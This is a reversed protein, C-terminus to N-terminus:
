PPHSLRGEHIKDRMIRNQEKSLGQRRKEATQYQINRWEDEVAPNYYPHSPDEMQQIALHNPSRQFFRKLESPDTWGDQQLCSRCLRGHSVHSRLNTTQLCRSAYPPMAERVDPRYRRRDPEALRRLARQIFLAAFTEACTCMQGKSPDDEALGSDGTSQQGGDGGFESKDGAESAAEIGVAEGGATKNSSVGMRIADGAETYRPRRVVSLSGYHEVSITIDKFIEAKATQMISQFQKLRREKQNETMEENSPDLMAVTEARSFLTHWVESFHYYHLESTATSTVSTEQSRPSPALMFSEEEEDDSDYAPKPPWITRSSNPIWRPVVITVARTPLPQLPGRLAQMKRITGKRSDREHPMWGIHQPLANMLEDFLEVPMIKYYKGGNRPDSGCLSEWTQEFARFDTETLVPETQDTAKKYHELVVAIFLNLMIFQGILQFSVFYMVAMMPNGCEDAEENCDPPQVMCDHMIGNWSEGTAMRFVTLLSTGFSAFNAHDGLFEADEAPQIKGMLHMGLVAYIFFILFLLGGVNLMTPVANVVALFLAMLDEMRSFLKFLRLIRFTRLLQLFSLDGGSSMRAYTFEFLTVIVVFFDFRNWGKKFYNRRVWCGALHTCCLIM